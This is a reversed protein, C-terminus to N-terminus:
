SAARSGHLAADPSAIPRSMESKVFRRGKSTSMTLSRHCLRIAPDYRLVARPFDQSKVRGRRLRNLSRVEAEQKVPVARILGRLSNGLFVDRREGSREPTLVAERCKGQDLLERRLCGDLIGASLPPTLLADGRRM